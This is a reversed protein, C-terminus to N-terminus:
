VGLLHCQFEDLFKHNSSLIKNKSTFKTGKMCLCIYNFGSIRNNPITMNRRQTYFVYSSNEASHGFKCSYLKSIFLNMTESNFEYTNSTLPNVIQTLDGAQSSLWLM